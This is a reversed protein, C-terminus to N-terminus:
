TILIKIIKKIALLVEQFNSIIHKLFLTASIYITYKLLCFQYYYFFLEKYVETLKM